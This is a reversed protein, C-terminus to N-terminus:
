FLNIRTKKNWYNQITFAFTNAHRLSSYNCTIGWTKNKQPPGEICPVIIGSQVDGAKPSMELPTDVTDHQGSTINQSSEIPSGPSNPSLHDTVNPSSESHIICEGLTDYQKVQEEAQSPGEQDGATDLKGLGETVHAPAQLM